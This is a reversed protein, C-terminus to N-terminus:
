AMWADVEGYPCSGLAIVMEGRFISYDSLVHVTEMVQWKTACGDGDIGERCSFLVITPSAEMKILISYGNETLVSLQQM